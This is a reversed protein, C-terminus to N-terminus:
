HMILAELAYAVTSFGKKSRIITPGTNLLLFQGDMRIKGEGPSLLMTLLAAEQDPDAIPIQTSHGNTTKGYFNKDSSPRIQPLMQRPIGFYGLMEDDWDLTELNMLMTRSANTYDTVHVGGEPGGTLNWILWTDM